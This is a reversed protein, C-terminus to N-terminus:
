FKRLSREQSKQKKLNRISRRFRIVNLIDEPSLRVEEAKEVQGSGYGKLSIAKQPCVASCQGCMVCDDIVKKAKNQDIVLNHAVCVKSCLGCGICKDTNIEVCYQSM